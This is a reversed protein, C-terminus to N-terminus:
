STRRFLYKAAAFPQSFVGSSRSVSPLPVFLLSGLQYLFSPASETKNIYNPICFMVFLFTGLNLSRYSINQNIVTGGVNFKTLLFDLFFDLQGNVLSKTKGVSDIIYISWRVPIRFPSTDLTRGKIRESLPGNIFVM